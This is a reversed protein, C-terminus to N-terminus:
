AAELVGPFGHQIQSTMEQLIEAIEESQSDDVVITVTQARAIIHIMQNANSEDAGMSQWSEFAERDRYVMIERLQGFPVLWYRSFEKATDPDQFIAKSWHQRLLHAGAKLVEVPSVGPNAVIIDEGGIV